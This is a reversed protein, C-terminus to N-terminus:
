GIIKKQELLSIYKVINIRNIHNLIYMENNFYKLIISQLQSKSIVKIVYYQNNLNNLGLYVNSYSGKGIINLLEINKGIDKVNM